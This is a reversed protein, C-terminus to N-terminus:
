RAYSACSLDTTIGTGIRWQDFLLETWRSQDVGAVTFGNAAFGFSLGGMGAFLDVVMEVSPLATRYPRPPSFFELQANSGADVMTPSFAFPRVSLSM